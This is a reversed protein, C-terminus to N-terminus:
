IPRPLSMNKAEDINEVFGKDSRADMSDLNHFGTWCMGLHIRKEPSSFITRRKRAPEFPESRLAEFTACVFTISFEMYCELHPCDSVGQCQPPEGSTGGYINSDLLVM